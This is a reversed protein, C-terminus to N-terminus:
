NILHLVIECYTRMYYKRYFNITRRLSLDSDTWLSDSLGVLHEFVKIPSNIMTYHYSRKGEVNYYQRNLMIPYTPMDAGNQDFGHARSCFEKFMPSLIQKAVNPTNFPTSMLHVKFKDALSDDITQKQLENIFGVFGQCMNMFMAPPVSEFEGFASEMDDYKLWHVAIAFEQELRQIDSLLIDKKMYSYIAVLFKSFLHPTSVAAKLQIFTGFPLRFKSAVEFADIVKPWYKGYLAHDDTLKDVWDNFIEKPNHEVNGNVSFLRPIMRKIDCEGSFVIYEKFEETNPLSFLNKDTQNLQIPAVIDADDNIVQYAWLSGDYDIQNEEIECSSILQISCEGVSESDYAFKRIKYVRGGVFLTVSSDRDFSNFGYLNFIRNVIDEFKTLITIGSSLPVTVKIIKSKEDFRKSNYTIEVKANNRGNCLIKYRQLESVSIVDDAGVINDEDDLLMTGYFPTAVGLVLTKTRNDKFLSYYCISPVKNGGRELRVNWSNKSVIEYMLGVEEQSPRIDAWLCSWEVVASNATADRKSYCLNPISYFTNIWPVYNGEPQIKIDLLGSPLISNATIRKWEIGGKIRYYSDFKRIREGDDGYIIVVPVSPLLKFNSYQIWDIYIGTLEVDYAQYNNKYQWVDGTKNNKLTIESEVPVIFLIDQNLTVTKDDCNSMWDSNCVVYSKSDSTNKRLKYFNSEADFVQPYDFSPPFCNPVSIFQEDGEECVVKVEIFAEGKWLVPKNDLSMSRYEASIANGAEDTEIKIRKYTGVYRQEVYVDFQYNKDINLEPLTNSSVLKGCDFRYYLDVNGSESVTFSWDFAFPKRNRSNKIRIRENQLASTLERLAVNSTDYPLLEESEEIIAHAIQLSIAYISNERFTNPLYQICNLKTVFEADNWDVQIHSLENVLGCLFRKYSGLNNRNNCIFNMPLGGQSLLTRFPHSGRRTKLYPICMERLGKKATEFLTDEEDDLGIYEAIRVKSPSNGDFINQWWYAYVIAAEVKYSRLVGKENAIVLERKLSEFDNESIDNMWLPVRPTIIGQKDLIKSLASHIIM